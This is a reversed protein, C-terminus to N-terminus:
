YKRLYTDIEWSHVQKKYDNWELEKARIFMNYIHDGLAEEMLESQKLEEVAEKINGPLSPIGKEERDEDCLNYINEVTESGPDIENKIGTLGAKLMVAMALYPNSSPDPNRLEVRTGQGRAAPVRVLASRNRSSWAVYVPAEYGPVLRKYSNITPNTIAAFEPAYELLGGMYYYAEQSLGLEDDPDYFINEGDEFLSQHVHMGSGNIGEIPKPMFTAHLGHDRAIKKTVFEFTAINDATRLVDTHKFDIEHQGSAVEHHSTEVEFEMEELAISIEQRASEGKDVPSLDFYGGKDHTITTPEGNESLKFLFFEPEPGAHMSYGMEEAEAIVNKLTSRPCGAFPEGEPTYIDCMLRAVKGHGNEWPFITFTDLDPNLYMDSEQIRSFGEISSGDFMIEGDLADPLQDVTIAVNKLTGLIDVFQLHIFKVNHKEAEELIIEKSMSM